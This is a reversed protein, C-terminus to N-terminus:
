ITCTNASCGLTSCLGWFSALAIEGNPALAYGTPHQMWANTAIIFFGSLWSGLFV